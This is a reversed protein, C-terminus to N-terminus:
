LSLTDLTYTHVIRVAHTVAFTNMVENAPLPLPVLLCDREELLHSIQNTMQSVDYVLRVNHGHASHLM